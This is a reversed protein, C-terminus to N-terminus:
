SGPLEYINYAHKGQPLAELEIPAMETEYHKLQDRPNMRAQTNAGQPLEVVQSQLPYLQGMPSSLSTAGRPTNHLQALLGNAINGGMQYYPIGTSLGDM